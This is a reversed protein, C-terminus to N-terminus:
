KIVKAMFLKARMYDVLSLFFQLLKRLVDVISFLFFAMRKPLVIAPFTFVWFYLYRKYLPFLINYPKEDKVSIINMRSRIINAPFFSLLMKKNIIEFFKKNIQYESVFIDFIKNNNVGFVHCLRYGGSNYLKAAGLYEKVYINKNSNFLASFTWGLHVLNTELFRELNLNDNVLSKNIVNVSVFTLFYNVKILFSDLDNYEDYGKLYGCGKPRESIFDNVFGYSRLNVVGYNDKELIDLIKGVAGDLLIDDDGLILVYKGTASNFCQLFNRDAGIDERNRVYNIAYSNHIYNNIVESTNDTSDNDSILVEVREDGKELQGCIHSLCIDLYSARNYTPIAITLLPKDM